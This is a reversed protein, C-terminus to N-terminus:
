AAFPPVGNAFISFGTAASASNDTSDFLSMIM